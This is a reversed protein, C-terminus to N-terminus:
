ANRTANTAASNAPSYGAHFSPCVSGAAASRDSYSSSVRNRWSVPNRPLVLFEGHGVGQLNAGDAAVDEAIAQVVDVAAAEEAQDGAEHPLLHDLRVCQVLNGAIRATQEDLGVGAQDQHIHAIAVLKRGLHALPQREAIAVQAQHALQRADAVPGFVHVDHQEGM